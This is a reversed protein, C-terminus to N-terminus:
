QMLWDSTATYPHPAAFGPWWRRLRKQPLDHSWASFYVQEAVSCRFYRLRVRWKPHDAPAEVAYILSSGCTLAAATTPPWVVVGVERAQETETSLDFRIPVSDNNNVAILASVARTNPFNTYGLFSLTVNGSAPPASQILLVITGILILAAFGIIVIRFRVIGARSGVSPSHLSCYFVPYIKCVSAPIWHIAQKMVLISM